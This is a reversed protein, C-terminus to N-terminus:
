QGASECGSGYAAAATAVFADDPAEDISALEPEGANVAVAGLLRGHDAWGGGAALVSGGRIGAEVDSVTLIRGM